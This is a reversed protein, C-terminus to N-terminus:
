KCIADGQRRPSLLSGPRGAACGLTFSFVPRGKQKWNYLGWFADAFFACFILPRQPMVHGQSSCRSGSSNDESTSGAHRFMCLMVRAGPSM